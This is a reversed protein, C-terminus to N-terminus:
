EKRIPSIGGKKERRLLPSSCLSYFLILRLAQM